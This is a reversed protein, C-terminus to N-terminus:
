APGDPLAPIKSWYSEWGDGRAPRPQPAIELPLITEADEGYPGQVVIVGEPDVALSCGICKRGAWPGATLTGVNSVGVIWLRFDKAVPAYNDRWLQGYPERSPDHDAPVAWACPSLIVDAGLYGLGRSIVQNRAFADACVMLGLCGLETHVVSLSEGPDYSGHALALENVKRHKAVTAGQPDILVATNYTYSGARETLGACVYLGHRVAAAALRRCPEGEPIPEAQMRASPHTWGLDLAEPLIALRVGAAAAAALHEEARRLNKRSEGGVVRMQIMAARFAALPPATM